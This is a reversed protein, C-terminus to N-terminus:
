NLVSIGTTRTPIIVATLYYDLKIFVMVIALVLIWQFYWDTEPYKDTRPMNKGCLRTKSISVKLYTKRFIFQNFSKIVCKIIRTQKRCSVDEWFLRIMIWSPHICQCKSMLYYLCKKINQCVVYIHSINVGFYYFSINKNNLHWEFYWHM